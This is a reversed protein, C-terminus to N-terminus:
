HTTDGLEPPAILEDAVNKLDEGFSRMVEHDGNSRVVIQNDPTAGVVLHPLELGQEQLRLRILAEAESLIEGLMAAADQKPMGRDLGIWRYGDIVARGAAMSPRTHAVRGGCGPCRYHQRSGSWPPKDLQVQDIEWICANCWLFALTVPGGVQLLEAPRIKPMGPTGCRRCRFRTTAIARGHLATNVELDLRRTAFCRSCYVHLELGHRAIDGITQIPLARVM